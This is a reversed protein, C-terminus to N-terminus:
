TLETKYLESWAYITRPFKEYAWESFPKAYKDRNWVFLSINSTYIDSIRYASQLLSGEYDRNPIYEPYCRRIREMQKIIDIFSKM